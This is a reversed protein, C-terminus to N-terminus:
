QYIEVTGDEAYRWWLGQTTPVEECYVYCLGPVDPLLDRISENPCLFKASTPTNWFASHDIKTLSKPLFVYKLSSCVYLTNVPLSTVGEGIIVVELSSCNSAIGFEIKPAGKIEIRKLSGCASAISAGIEEVGAPIVLETIAYCSEFAWNGIYTVSDPIQIETLKECNQFAYKGIKLLGNPLHIATLERCGSFAYEAISTIGQPVTFEGTAANSVMFLRNGVILVNNPDKHFNEYWATGKFDYPSIGSFTSPVVVEEVNILQCFIESHTGGMIEEVGEEFVIKKIRDVPGFYYPASIIASGSGSFTLIGETTLTIKVNYSSGESAVGHITGDLCRIERKSINEGDHGDIARWEEMTGNYIVVFWDGGSPFATEEISEIGKGLVVEELHNTSSFLARPISKLSDPFTVRRLKYCDSFAAVGIHTLGEPLILEELLECRAFAYDNIYTVTNPVTVKGTVSTDVSLLRGMAITLGNEEILLPTGEFNNKEFKLLSEEGKVTTLASCGSFCLEQLKATAGSFDVTELSTCNLFARHYIDTVTNPITISKLATAGNCFYAIIYDQEAPLVLTELATANAFVSPGFSVKKGLFVAKKLSTCSDFANEQVTTTAEPITIEKLSTCNKFANYGIQTLTSPLNVDELSTCSQFSASGLTTVGEPISISKLATCEEFASYDIKTITTPLIVEQLSACGFFTNAEVITMGEPLVVRKLTSHAFAAAGIYVENQPCFEEIQAYQLASGGIYTLTEPLVLPYKGIDTYVFADNGLTILKKPLKIESLQTCSAFASDPIKTLATNEMNAATLHKCSGFAYREMTKLSAPLDVTLLSTGAFAFEGIEQLLSPMTFYFLKECEYFAKSKIVTVSNPLMINSLKKCKEFTSMPIINVNGEFVVEALNPCEKFICVDSSTLVLSGPLTIEKLGSGNFAYAGIHTVTDPIEFETISSCWQFADEGISILADSCQLKVLKSCGSFVATPLVTIDSDLTIECIGKCQSFSYPVLEDLVNIKALSSPIQGRVTKGNESQYVPYHLNSYGDEAFYFALPHKMAMTLTTLKQLGGFASKAVNANAPLTIETAELCGRFAGSQIDCVGDLVTITKVQNGSFAGALIGAVEYGQESIPSIILDSDKCSGIGSVYYVDGKQTYALGTSFGVPDTFNATYFTACNRCAYKTYGKHTRDPYVTTIEYDHMTGKQETEEETVAGCTRCTFVTVKYENCFADKIESTNDHGKAAVIAERYSDKCETCVYETYGESTCTPSVIHKEYTHDHCAALLFMIMLFFFSLLIRKKMM